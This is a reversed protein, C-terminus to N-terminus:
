ENKNQRKRVVEMLVAFADAQAQEKKRKGEEAARVLFEYATEQHTKVSPVSKRPLIGLPKPKLPLTPGPKVGLPRPSPLTATPLRPRQAPKDYQDRIKIAEEVWDNINNAITAYIEASTRGSPNYCKVIQDFPVDGLKFTEFPNRGKVDSKMEHDLLAHIYIGVVGKGLQWSREIEYNVWRREATKAGVLVITCSRYSLQDDIWQMISKDDKLKVEEWGNDTVQRDGEVVGINRVKASRFADRKYYFSFFVQRKTM